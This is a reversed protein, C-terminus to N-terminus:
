AQGAPDTEPSAEKGAPSAAARFHRRMRARRARNSASIGPLTPVHNLRGERGWRLHGGLSIDQQGGLQMHGPRARVQYRARPQRFAEVLAQRAPKHQDAGRRPVALGDQQGVPRPAALLRHRPHRQVNAIVIRRPEPAMTHGRQVLRPRPEGSPHAREEARGRRRRVLAQHGRQDVFQGGPRIRALRQQHEVVVVQDVRRCHVLREPEQDLVPRRPQAQHQGAAAVRRQHQGPQPAAPLQGLQAGRLQSEGRVLRRRQEPLPHGHGAHAQRFRRHRRQGGAGLPPGGPQLQRGQRQAPLGIGGPERGREGAAVAVDQVEQGFLDELVLTFLYAREQKLGRHELPEAARQTVGDGAPPLWASSSPPRVPGTGRPM